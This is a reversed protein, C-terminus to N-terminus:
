SFTPVTAVAGLPESPHFIVGSTWLMEREDGVFNPKHFIGLAGSQAGCIGLPNFDVVRLGLSTAPPPHCTTKLSNEIFRFCFECLM